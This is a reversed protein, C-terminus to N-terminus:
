WEVHRGELLGKDDAAPTSTRNKLNVNMKGRRLELLALFLLLYCLVAGFPSCYCDIFLYGSLQRSIDVYINSGWAHPCFSAETHHIIIKM